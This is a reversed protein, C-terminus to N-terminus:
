FALMIDVETDSGTAFHTALATAVAACVTVQSARRGIIWAGDGYPLRAASLMQVTLEPQNENYILRGSTIAGLLEDCAQAYLIGDIDTVPIGAPILRAAVASATRKSYAVVETQYKRAYPAIDNAIGKDDLSIPNHWTHLLKVIFQEDEGGVRQAGVLAGYKRDPSLDLGLWTTRTEDLDAVKRAQKTWSDAPIAGSITNVWRCLVETRVVDPPDNLVARINDPHITHGLAPNASIWNKEDHIDDSAGSWELYCIDDNGGAAAVLGRDRLHNLVVSHQDGANSIGWLQPNPSAMMTYKLASFGDLDTAERLEDLFVTNPKAIGRAASTSAKVVFRNGGKLKIEEQGHAWSIKKIQDNLKDNQEIYSVIDKFTELATSLRHASGLQLPDDWLFLGGLARIKELETKGNQRAVVVCVVPHAWRGDPKIKHIEILANRQWPMVELGIEKAFAILEHGKSPLENARSRVRPLESGILPIQLTNKKARKSGIPIVNPLDLGLELESM